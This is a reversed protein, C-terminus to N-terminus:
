ANTASRPTPEFVTWATTAWTVSATTYTRSSINNATAAYTAANGKQAKITINATNGAAYLEDVSFQIYAKTITAGQPLTVNPFRIGTSQKYNGGWDYGGLELDSSNIQVAGTTTNQEADDSSTLPKLRLTQTQASAYFSIVGLFIPMLLRLLKSM